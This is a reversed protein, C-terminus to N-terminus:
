TLCSLSKVCSERLLDTSMEKWPDFSRWVWLLIARGFCSSDIELEAHGGWREARVSKHKYPLIDIDESFQGLPHVYMVTLVSDCKSTCGKVTWTFATASCTPPFNLPQFSSLYNSGCFWLVASTQLCSQLHSLGGGRTVATDTLAPQELSHGTPNQIHELSISWLYEPSGTGVTAGM